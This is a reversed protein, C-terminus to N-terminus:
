LDSDLLGQLRGNAGSLIPTGHAFLMQEAKYDLLKRLSRRMQKQNSCYKGPLFAFGYPEFNILADGVILTGGSPAYHLIIEGAAAGEIGIVHLGDCIEDGDRVKKFQRPQGDPFTEGRAFIPASFTEAFQASDRHHNFNTVIIGVVSDESRLQALPADGMPIPDVLFIGKATVIASSCLDSKVAGDYAQWIVLEPAIKDLDTAAPMEAPEPPDDKNL